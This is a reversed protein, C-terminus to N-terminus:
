TSAVMRVTTYICIYSSSPSISTNKVPSSSISFAHLAILYSIWFYPSLTPFTLMIGRYLERGGDICYFINSGAGDELLFPIAPRFIIIDVFIASVENVISPITYTISGPNALYFTKLGRILTSDNNTDGIDFAEAL